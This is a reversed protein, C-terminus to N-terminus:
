HLDGEPFITLAPPGAPQRKTPKPSQTGARDQLRRYADRYEGNRPAAAQAQEFQELAAQLSGALELDKGYLFHTQAREPQIRASETRALVLSEEFHQLAGAYDGTQRLSIALNFHLPAYPAAKQIGERFVELSEAWRGAEQLASGYDNYLEAREPEQRLCEKFQAIAEEIKGDAALAIALNRHANTFGPDILVATRLHELAKARNGMQAHANALGFHFRAEGPLIRLGEQYTGVAEDFRRAQLLAQGLHDRPYYADPNLLVNHSWFTVNDKYIRCQNWTLGLLIVCLLTIGAQGAKQIRLPANKLHGAGLVAAGTLPLASALYQFHDAVFSFRQFSFPIFGLSPLLIVIFGFIVFRLGRVLPSHFWCLAGLCGALGALPLWDLLNSPAITWHPYIPMLQFPWVLKFLYFWVAHAAILTRQLLTESYEEGVPLAVTQEVHWYIGGVLVAALLFPITQVFAKLRKSGKWAELLFLFFPAMCVSSKALMALTFAGLSIAYFIGRRPEEGPRQYKDWASVCVLSFLGSLVDKRETIWAVSEVHVPHLAFLFAATAAGALGLRGAIGLVLIANALHLLVNVLHYGFPHLGWLQYEAWFTTMVLPHYAYATPETWVRWWGDPSTLKENEVVYLWDDFVYGGLLAPVYACLTALVLPILIGSGKGRSDAPNSHSSPPLIM